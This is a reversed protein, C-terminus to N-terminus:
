WKTRNEYEERPREHAWKFFSFIFKTLVLHPINMANSSQELFM